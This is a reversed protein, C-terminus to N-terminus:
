RVSVALYFASVCSDTDVPVAGPCRFRGQQRRTAATAEGSGDVLLNIANFASGALGKVLVSVFEANAVHATNVSDGGNAADVDFLPLRNLITAGFGTVVVAATDAANAMVSLTIYPGTWNASDTASYLVGRATSDPLVTRLANSLDEIDHPQNPRVNVGFAEIGTRVNTLDGLTRVPEAREMQRIVAPYVVVAFAALMGVTVVAEVLTFGRPIRPGISM